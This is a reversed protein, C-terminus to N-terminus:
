PFDIVGHFHFSGRRNNPHHALHIVKHCYFLYLMRKITTGTYHFRLYLMIDTFIFKLLRFGAAPDVFFPFRIPRPWPEPRPPVDVRPWLPACDRDPCLVFIPNSPPCIGNCRRTGFNPNLFGFRTSYTPMLRSTNCSNT